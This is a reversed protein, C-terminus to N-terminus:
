IKRTEKENKYEKLFNIIKIITVISPVAGQETGSIVTRHVGSKEALDQQTIGLSFRQNKIINGFNNIVDISNILKEFEKESNVIDQYSLISNNIKEVSNPIIVNFLRNGSEKYKIIWYREAKSLDFTNDCKELVDIFPSKNIKSLNKVWNSVDENHSYNLHKKSRKIGSTSKGIYRYEDTEPDRLGYIIFEGLKSTKNNVVTSINILKNRKKSVRKM